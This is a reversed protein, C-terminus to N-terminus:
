GQLQLAQFHDKPLTADKGNLLCSVCHVIETVIKKNRPAAPKGENHHIFICLFIM